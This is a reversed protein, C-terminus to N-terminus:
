SGIMVNVKGGELTVPFTQIPQPAPGGNCSGSRVDFRAGHLPCTIEFGRLRGSSLPQQAHSCQNRLAYFQGEVQCVLIPIGDVQVAVHEGEGLAAMPMLAVSKM